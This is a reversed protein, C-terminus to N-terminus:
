DNSARVEARKRQQEKMWNAFAPVWHDANRLDFYDERSDPDITQAFQELMGALVRKKGEFWDSTSFTM